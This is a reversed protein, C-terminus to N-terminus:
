WIQDGLFKQAVEHSVAYNGWKVLSCSLQLIMFHKALSTPSLVLSSVKAWWGAIWKGRLCCSPGLTVLNPFFDCCLNGEM